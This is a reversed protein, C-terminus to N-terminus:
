ATLHRLFVRFEPGPQLADPHTLPESFDQLSVAPKIKASDPMQWVGPVVADTKKTYGESGVWPVARLRDKLLSFPKINGLPQESWTRKGASGKRDESSLSLTMLLQEFGWTRGTIQGLHESAQKEGAPGIGCHSRFDDRGRPLGPHNFPHQVSSLRIGPWVEGM